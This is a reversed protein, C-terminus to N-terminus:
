SVIVCTRLEQVSEHLLLLFNLLLRPLEPRILLAFAVQLLHVLHMFLIGVQLLLDAFHVFLPPVCFFDEVADLMVQIYLLLFANLLGRM